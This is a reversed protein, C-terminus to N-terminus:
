SLYYLFQNLHLPSRYLVTENLISNFCVIGIVFDLLLAALWGTRSALKPRLFILFPLMKNQQVRSGCQGFVSKFSRSATSLFSFHLHSLAWHRLQLSISTTEWFKLFSRFFSSTMSVSWQSSGSILDWCQLIGPLWLLSPVDHVLSSDYIFLPYSKFHHSYQEPLAFSDGVPSRLLYGAINLIVVPISLFVLKFYWISTLNNTKFFIICWIQHEVM